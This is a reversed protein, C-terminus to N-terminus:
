GRREARDRARQETQMQKGEDTTIGGRDPVRVPRSPQPFADAFADEVSEDVIPHAAELERRRNETTEADM